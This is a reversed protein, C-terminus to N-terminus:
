MVLSATLPPRTNTPSTVFLTVNTLYSLISLVSLTKASSRLGLHAKKGREEGRKEERRREEGRREEGRREEGKRESGGRDTKRHLNTLARHARSSSVAPPPSRKPM